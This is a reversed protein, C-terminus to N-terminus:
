GTTRELYEIAIRSGEEGAARAARRLVEVDAVRYKLPSLVLAAARLIPEQGPAILFLAAGLTLLTLVQLKTTM